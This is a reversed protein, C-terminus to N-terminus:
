VRLYFIAKKGIKVFSM